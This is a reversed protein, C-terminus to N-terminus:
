YNLLVELELSMVLSIRDVDEVSINFSSPGVELRGTRSGRWRTGQVCGGGEMRGEVM